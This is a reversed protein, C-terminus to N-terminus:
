DLMKSYFSFMSDITIENTSREFPKLDKRAQNWPKDTHTRLVLKGDAQPAYFKLVSNIIRVQKDEINLEDIKSKLEDELNGSVEYKIDENKFFNTKYTDYVSRYVPGNVWAQPLENFLNNKKFKAIHWSQIYYLLKQLKLPTISLGNAKCYVIVFDVLNNLNTKRMVLKTGFSIGFTSFFYKVASSIDFILTELTM